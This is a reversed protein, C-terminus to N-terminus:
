PVTMASVWFVIRPIRLCLCSLSNLLFSDYTIKEMSPFYVTFCSCTRVQVGFSAFMFIFMLSLIGGSLLKRWGLLVDWVVRRMSNLLSILRLPRLARLFVVVLVGDNLNVLTIDIVRQAGCASMYIAM